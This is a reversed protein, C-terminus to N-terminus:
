IQFPGAFRKLGGPARRALPDWVYGAASVGLGVGTVNPVRVLISSAGISGASQGLYLGKFHVLDRPRPMVRSATVIGEVAYNGRMNIGLDYAFLIMFVEFIQAIGSDLRMEFQELSFLRGSRVGSPNFQMEIGNTSGSADGTSTEDVAWIGSPSGDIPRGGQIPIQRVTIVTAVAM